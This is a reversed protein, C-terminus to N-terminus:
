HSFLLRRPSPRLHHHITGHRDRAQQFRERRRMERSEQWKVKLSEDRAGENGEKLLSVREGLVQNTRGECGVSSLQREGENVAAEHLGALDSLHVGDM